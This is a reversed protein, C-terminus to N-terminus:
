MDNYRYELQCNMQIPLQTIASTTGNANLTQIVCWIPPTLCDGLDDYRIQKSCYKTLDIQSVVSLKFDNNAGNAYNTSPQQTNEAYGIKHTRHTIYTYADGNIVQNLDPISGTFGGANVINSDFFQANIGVLDGLAPPATTNGKIKFFFLRVIQPFPISNTTANYGSNHLTYRLLLRKTSIRNGIRQGNEVGQPVFLRTWALGQEVPTCCFYNSSLTTTTSQMCTPQINFIAFEEKTEAKSSLVKLVKKRFVQNSVKRVAKKVMSKKAPRRYVRKRRIFKAM